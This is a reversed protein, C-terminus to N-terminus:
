RAMKATIMSAPTKNSFFLFYASEDHEAFAEPYGSAKATISHM